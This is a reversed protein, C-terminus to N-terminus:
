RGEETNVNKSRKREYMKNIMEQTNWPKRAIKEVKGVVDSLTDLVCEKINNGQVEVNESDCEIAGLKWELTDQVRQKQTYLKELDWLPRKQFRIIKKLRTCIKAALLSHDTSIQGLCHRCM